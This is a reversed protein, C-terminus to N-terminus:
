LVQIPDVVILAFYDVLHEIFNGIIIVIRSLDQLICFSLSRVEKMELREEECVLSSRHQIM